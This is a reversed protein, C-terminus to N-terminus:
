NFTSVFLTYYLYKTKYGKGLLESEFQKLIKIRSEPKLTRCEKFTDVCIYFYQEGSEIESILRYTMATICKPGEIKETELLKANNAIKAVEVIKLAETSSPIEVIKSSNLGM